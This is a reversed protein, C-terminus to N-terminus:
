AHESQEMVSPRGGCRRPGSRERCSAARAHGPPCARAASRLYRGRAISGPSRRASGRRAGSASGRSPRPGSRGSRAPRGARRRARAAARLAAVGVVGVGRLVVDGGVLLAVARVAAEPALRLRAARHPQAHGVLPLRDDVIHDDAARAERVRVHVVRHDGPGVARRDVVERDRDVVEVGPDGVDDAADVMERVGGLLQEHEVREALRGRAVGMQRQEVARVALLEGLAVTGGGHLLEAVGAIEGLRDVVVDRQEPGPKGGVLLVEREVLEGLAEAEVANGLVGGYEVLALKAVHVPAPQAFEADVLEVARSSSNVPRVPSRGATSIAASFIWVSLSNQGSTDNRYSSGTSSSAANWRTMPPSPPTSVSWAARRRARRVGVRELDRLDLRRQAADHLRAPAFGPLTNWGTRTAIAPPM